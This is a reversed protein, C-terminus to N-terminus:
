ETRSCPARLSVLPPREPLGSGAAATDDLLRGERRMRSTVAGLVADAM